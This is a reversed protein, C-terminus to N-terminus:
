VGFCIGFLWYPTTLLHGVARIIAWNSQWQNTMYDVVPGIAKSLYIILRWLFYWIDLLHDVAKIIVLNTEM